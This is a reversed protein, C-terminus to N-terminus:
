VPKLPSDDHRCSDLEAAQVVGQRVVLKAQVWFRGLMPVAMAQDLTPRERKRARWALPNLGAGVARPAVVLVAVVAKVAVAGGKGGLPGPALPDVAQDKSPMALQPPM